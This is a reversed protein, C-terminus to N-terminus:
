NPIRKNEHAKVHNCITSKPVGFKESAKSIGMLKKRVAEVAKQLMISNYNQYNRGGVKKYYTRGM